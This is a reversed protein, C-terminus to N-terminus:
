EVGGGWVGGVGGGFFFIVRDQFVGHEQVDDRFVVDKKQCSVM